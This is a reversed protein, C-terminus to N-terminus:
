GSIRGAATEQGTVEGPDASASGGSARGYRARQPTEQWSRAAWGSRGGTFGPHCSWSGASIALFTTTEAPHQIFHSPPPPPFPSPKTVVRGNWKVEATESTM